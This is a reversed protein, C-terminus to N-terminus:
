LRPRHQRLKELKPIRRSATEIEKKKLKQLDYGVINIEGEALELDAYLTKLLSSKGTGTKGILYVMEGTSISINVNSLVLHNKQSISANKINIVVAM